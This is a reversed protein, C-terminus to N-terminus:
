VFYYFYSVLGYLPFMYSPATM